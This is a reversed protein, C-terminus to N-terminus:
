RPEEPEEEEQVELAAANVTLKCLLTPLQPPSSLSIAQAALPRMVSRSINTRTTANKTLSVLRRGAGRLGINM